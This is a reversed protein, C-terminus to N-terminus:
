LIKKKSFVKEKGGKVRWTSRRLENERKKQKEKKKEQIEPYM